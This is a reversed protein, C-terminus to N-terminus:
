QLHFVPRLGDFDRQTFPCNIRLSALYKPKTLGPERKPNPTKAQKRIVTSKSGEIMTM